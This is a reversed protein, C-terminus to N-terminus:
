LYPFCASTMEDYSEVASIFAVSSWTLNKAGIESGSDRDFQESLGTQFNKTYIESIRNITGSSIAHFRKIVISFPHTSCSVTENLRDVFSAELGMLLFTERLLNSVSIQCETCFRAATKSLLESYAASALPWPNGHSFGVGDYVDEPYRGILPFDQNANLRYFRMSDVIKAASILLRHSVASDTYRQLLLGALIVASDLQSDKSTIGGQIDITERIYGAKADWHLDFQKEIVLAQHSYFEAAGPDDLRSALDAGHRLALWQAVRTFYHTGFSEEWLDFSPSQFSHSVYELDSKIISKTPLKSDYLVHRLKEFQDRDLSNAFNINVLARLAPGDNQPRGWPLSFPSGGVLFKPEGLGTLANSSQHVQTLRVQALLLQNDIVHMFTLSADRIWHYFYDPQSKSPSAVVTGNAMINSAMIHHANALMGYTQKTLAAACCGVFGILFIM